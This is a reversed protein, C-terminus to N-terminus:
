GTEVAGQAPTTNDQHMEEARLATAAAIGVHTLRYLKRRPRGEDAVVVGQEWLGSLMRRKELDWLATYLSGRAMLLRSEKIRQIEIAVEFGTWKEVGQSRLRMAADLIEMQAKSLGQM